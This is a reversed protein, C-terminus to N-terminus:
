AAPERSLITPIADATDTRPNNAMYRLVSILGFELFLALPMVDTGDAGHLGGVFGIVFASILMIAVPIFVRFGWGNKFARVGFYIEFATTIM